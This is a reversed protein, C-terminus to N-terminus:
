GCWIAAHTYDCICMSQWKIAMVHKQVHGVAGAAAAALDLMGAQAVQQLLAWDNTPMSALMGGVLALLEQRCSSRLDQATHTSTHLM